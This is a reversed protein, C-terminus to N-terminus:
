ASSPMRSQRKDRPSPSTYLLCPCEPRGGASRGRDSRRSLGEGRRLPWGKPPHTPHPRLAAHRFPRARVYLVTPSDSSGRTSGVCAVARDSERRRMYEICQVACTQLPAQVAGCTHQFPRKRYPTQSVVRHSIHVHTRLALQSQVSATQMSLQRASRTTTRERGEAASERQTVRGRRGIHTLPM